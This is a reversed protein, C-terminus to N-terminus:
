PRTPESIHILSLNGHISAFVSGNEQIHKKIKNMIKAKETDDQTNYDPFDITDYIQSSITQNKIQDIEILDENNEFPMESEPIAGSGNTLYSEAIYWQGGEGVTRNYGGENTENNKFIKVREDAIQVGKQNLQSLLRALRGNLVASAEEDSYTYEEPKYEYYTIKGVSVPLYLDDNIKLTKYDEKKDCM